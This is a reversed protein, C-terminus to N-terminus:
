SLKSKISAKYFVLYIFISLNHQKKKQKLKLPITTTKRQLDPEGHYGDLGLGKETQCKKKGEEKKNTINSSTNSNNLEDQNLKTLTHTDLFEHIEKVKLRM